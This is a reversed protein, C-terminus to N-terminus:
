FAADLYAGGTLPHKAPLVIQAAASGETPAYILGRDGALTGFWVMVHEGDGSLIPRHELAVGPTSEVDPLEIVETAGSADGITAVHLATQGQSVGVIALRSGDASWAFSANSAPDAAAHQFARDIRIAAPQESSLDVYDIWSSSATEVRYGLLQLTADFSVEAIAGGIPVDALEIREAVAGNSVTVLSIGVSTLQPQEGYVYFVRGLADIGHGRSYVGPPHTVNERALTDPETILVPPQATTPGDFEILSLERYDGVGGNTVLLRSTDAGAAISFTHDLGPAISVPNADPDDVSVAMPRMLDTLAERRYVIRENDLHVSMFSAVSLAPIGTLDLSDIHYSATPSRDIRLLFIDWLGPTVTSIAAAAWRSDSSRALIFVKTGSPNEPTFDFSGMLEGQDYRVWLLSEPGTLPDPGTSILANEGADGFWMSSVWAATQVALPVLSLEGEPSLRLHDISGDHLVGHTGFPTPGLLAGVETVTALYEPPPINSPDDLHIAVIVSDDSGTSSGTAVFRRPELPDGDTDTGTETETETESPEDSTGSETGTMSAYGTSLGGPEPSSCAVALLPLVVCLQSVRLM